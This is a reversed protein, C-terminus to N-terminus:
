AYIEPKKTAYATNVGGLGDRLGAVVPYEGTPTTLCQLDREAPTVQTVLGWFEQHELEREALLLAPGVATYLAEGFAAVAEDLVGRVRHLEAAWWENSGESPPEAPPATHLAAFFAATDDDDQAGAHEVPEDPPQSPEHLMDDDPTHHGALTASTALLLALSVMITPIM